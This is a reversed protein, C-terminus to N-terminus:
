FSNAHGYLSSTVSAYANTQETPPICYECECPEFSEDDSQDEESDRSQESDTNEETQTDQGEVKAHESVVSHIIGSPPRIERLVNQLACDVVSKPTKEDTTKEVVSCKALINTLETVETIRFRVAECEEPIQLENLSFLTDGRDTRSVEGNDKEHIIKDNSRGELIFENLSQKVSSQISKIQFAYYDEVNPKCMEEVGQNDVLSWYTEMESCEIFTKDEPEVENDEKCFNGNTQVHNTSSSNDGLSEYKQADCLEDEYADGEVSIDDACPAYMSEETGSSTSVEAEKENSIEFFDGESVCSEENFTEEYEEVEEYSEARFECEIEEVEDETLSSESNISWDEPNKESEYDGEFSAGEESAVECAEEFADDAQPLIIEEFGYADASAKQTEEEPHLGDRIDGGDFCSIYCQKLSFQQGYYDARDFFDFYDEIVVDGTPTKKEDENSEEATIQKVQEDEEFSEWQVQEDSSDDQARKESEASLDSYPDSPVSGDPFTKFSKTEVSSCVSSGDEESSTPCEKPTESYNKGNMGECHDTSTDLTAAPEEETQYKECCENAFCSHESDDFCTHVPTDCCLSNADETQELPYSEKDEEDEVDDDDGGGGEVNTSENENQIENCECLETGCDLLDVSQSIDAIFSSMECQESDETSTDPESDFCECQEELAKYQRLEFHDTSEPIFDSMKYQEFDECNLPLKDPEFIFSEFHQDPPKCQQFLQLHEVCHECCTLSHNACHESSKCSKFCECHHACEDFPQSSGLTECIDLTHDSEFFGNSASYQQFSEAHGNCYTLPETEDRTMNCHKVCLFSSDMEGSLIQETYEVLVKIGLETNSSSSVSVADTLKPVLCQEALMAEAPPEVEESINTKESNELYM